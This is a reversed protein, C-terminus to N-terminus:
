QMGYTIIHVGDISIGIREIFFAHFTEHSTKQHSSRVICHDIIATNATPRVRIDIVKNRIRYHLM